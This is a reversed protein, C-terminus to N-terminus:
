ARKVISYREVCRRQRPPAATYFKDWLADKCEISSITGGFAPVLCTTDPPILVEASALEKLGGGDLQAALEDVRRHEDRLWAVFDAVPLCEASEPENSDFFNVWHNEAVDDKMRAVAKRALAQAGELSTGQSRLLKELAEVPEIYPARQGAPPELLSFTERWWLDKPVEILGCILAVVNPELDSVPLAKMLAAINVM